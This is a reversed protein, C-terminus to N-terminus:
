VRICLFNGHNKENIFTRAAPLFMEQFEPVKRIIRAACLAAKKKIFTNPSKMLREVEGALDRSMEPSCISGLACLALGVVFQTQSNLDNKLSNTILLHVDQREDLLLM